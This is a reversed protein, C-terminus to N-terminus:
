ATCNGDYATGVQLSKRHSVLGARHEARRAVHLM